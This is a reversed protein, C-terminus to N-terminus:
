YPKIVTVKCAQTKVPAVDKEWPRVYEFRLTEEGLQKANLTFFQIGGSGAAPQARASSEYESRVLDFLVLPKALRWSYGTTPNSKLQIRTNDGNLVVESGCTLDDATAIYHNSPTIGSKGFILSRCGTLVGSILLTGLVLIGLVRKALINRQLTMNYFLM